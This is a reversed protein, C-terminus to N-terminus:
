RPAALQAVLRDWRALARKMEFREEFAKRARRGIASCEGPRDRLLLIADALQRGEGTPVALGSETAALIAATEGGPDGVFITPRGAAMIGYLKSPHVLGEFEPRLICVHVDGAGLSMALAGRHQHPQFRINALGLRRAKDQVDPLQPGRGIVVFQISSERALLRAADLLTEFEHVRGLNGSYEVVFSGELGWDARLSNREHEIPVVESGDAWNHIVSLRGEELGAASRLLDAMRDCIAVVHDSSALTHNRMRSLLGAFPAVGGVGYRVAVEPFVDQAWIVIRAGAAAAVPAIASSILPPDTKIIALDGPGLIRRAVRRAGVYYALYDALRRMLGHPGSTTRAVRHVAVGNITEVEAGGGPVIGTVVHVDRGQAAWHFALDSLIQSTASNDPFFFRNFFVIKM